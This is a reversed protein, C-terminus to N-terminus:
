AVEKIPEGTTETESGPPPTIPRMWEDPVTTVACHEPGLIEGTEPDIGRSPRPTTVEWVWGDEDHGWLQVVENVSGVNEPLCAKIQIALCGPWCRLKM